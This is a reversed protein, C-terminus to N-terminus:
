VIAISGAQLAAFLPTLTMAVSVKNAVQLTLPVGLPPLV